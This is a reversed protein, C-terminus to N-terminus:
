RSPKHPLWKSYTQTLSGTMSTQLMKSYSSLWRSVQLWFSVSKARICMCHRYSYCSTKSCNLWDQVTAVCAFVQMQRMRSKQTSGLAAMPAGASHFSLLTRFTVTKTVVPTSLHYSSNLKPVVASSLLPLISIVVRLPRIESATGDRFVAADNRNLGVKDYTGSDHWAVRVLIPNCHRSNILERVDDRADKLAEKKTTRRTTETAVATSIILQRCRPIRVARVSQLRTTCVFQRHAVIHGTQAM